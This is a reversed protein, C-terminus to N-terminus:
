IEIELLHNGDAPEASEEALCEVLSLSPDDALRM